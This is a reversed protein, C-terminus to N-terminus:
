KYEVINSTDYFAEVQNGDADYAIYVNMLRYDYGKEVQYTEDFTVNTSDTGNWSQVTRWMSGKQQLQMVLRVTYGARVSVSGYCSAIGSSSIDFSYSTRTIAVNYPTAESSQYDFQETAMASICSSCSIMCLTAILAIVRKIKLM